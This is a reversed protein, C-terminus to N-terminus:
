EEQITYTIKMTQTNVKTIPTGLNNITALYDSFYVFVSRDTATGASTYALMPYNRMRVASLNAGRSYGSSSFSYQSLTTVGSKYLINSEADSIYLRNSSTGGGAYQWYVYGNQALIPAIDNSGSNGQLQVFEGDGGLQVKYVTYPSADTRFYAWGNHIFCYRRGSSSYSGNAKASLVV